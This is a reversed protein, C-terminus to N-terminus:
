ACVQSCLACVGLTLVFSLEAKRELWDNVAAVLKPAASRLYQM